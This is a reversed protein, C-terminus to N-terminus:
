RAMGRQERAIALAEKALRVILPAILVGWPGMVVIGGFMAVLVVFAPLQLRARRVLFPRALNDVTSIVAIGAITLVIGAAVRDTLALGVAVPAWVLATGIAPVVSVVLTLLGLAFPQPVGIAVYIITAAIGQVLCAGASGILLGRGTEVFAGALRGSDAPSFPAHRELWAYWREGDVLMAYTGAVLILLGVAASAATGAVQQLIMWVREGQSMAFDLLDSSGQPEREDRSVLQRLIEHARDSAAVRRVLDIADTVLLVLLIAAPVVLAALMAVTVIAALRPRNGFWRALPLHVRRALVASWIALVVWPLFPWAVIATGAVLALTLWQLARRESSSPTM